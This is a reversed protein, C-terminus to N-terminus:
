SGAEMFERAKTRMAAEDLKITASDSAFIATSLCADEFSLYRGKALGAAAKNADAEDLGVATFDEITPTRKPRPRTRGWADRDTPTGAESLPRGWATATPAERRAEDIRRGVERIRERQVPSVPMSGGGFNYGGALSTAADVFDIYRGSEMMQAGRRAKEDDFGAARFAEVLDLSGAGAEGIGLAKDIDDWSPTTSM